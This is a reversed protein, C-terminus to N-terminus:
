TICFLGELAEHVAEEFVEGEEKGVSSSWMMAM